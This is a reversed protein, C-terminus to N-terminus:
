FHHVKDVKYILLSQLMELQLTIEKNEPMVRKAM